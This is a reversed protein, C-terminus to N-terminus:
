SPSVSPDGGSNPAIFMRHWLQLNLVGMLLGARGMVGRQHEMRLRAVAQPDFVGAREIASRELASEAWEPLRAQALWAAYPVMLGKKRRGRVDEPILGKAAQRLIYKETKRLYSGHLKLSAPVTACFEWLRHDLFPPRAEVSHAMSMRDLSHTIHEVMRTRSEVWLMQHFPDGEPLPGSWLEVGAATKRSALDSRIDPSLLGEGYGPLDAGIWDQYRRPVSHSGRRLIRGLRM